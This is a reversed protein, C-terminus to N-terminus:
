NIQHISPFKHANLLDDLKESFLSVVIGLINLHKILAKVTLM